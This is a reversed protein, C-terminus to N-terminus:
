KSFGLRETQLLQRELWLQAVMPDACEYAGRAAKAVYNAAVLSTIATQVESTSPKHGTEREYALKAADSFPAPQGQALRSFIALPLPGLDFLRALEREAIGARLANATAQIATDPDQNPPLSKLLALARFLEEPRHGLREFAAAAATLSPRAQGLEDHVQELVFQVFESGLVPFDLTQSGLFAQARGSVLERVKVQHSGTGLFLFHGPTVPRLNVADRAAKLAYLIDAGSASTLAHQVEDVVLVVDTQVQDVLQVMAEAITPGGKQGVMELEFGFKVAAVEFKLKRIAQIRQIARNGLTSLLALKQSIARRVQDFPDENPASWLDVYIVVAGRAELEPVLEGSLFTSKGIRRLGALFLGSRVHQELVTPSLLLRALDQALAPRHFHM